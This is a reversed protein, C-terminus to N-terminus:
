LWSYSFFWSQSPYAPILQLSTSNLVFHACNPPTFGVLSVPCDDGEPSRRLLFSVFLKRYRSQKRLDRTMERAYLGGRYTHLHRTVPLAKHSATQQGPKDNRPSEGDEEPNIARRRIDNGKVEQGGVSRDAGVGRWKCVHVDVARVERMGRDRKLCVDCAAVLIQHAIPRGDRQVHVRGAKGHASNCLGITEPAGEGGRPDRGIISRPLLHVAPSHEIQSDVIEIPEM